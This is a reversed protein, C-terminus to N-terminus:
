VFLGKFHGTRYLLYLLSVTILMTALAGAVILLTEKKVRSPIKSAALLCWIFICGLLVPFVVVYANEGIAALLLSAIVGPVMVANGLYKGAVSSLWYVVGLALPVLAVCAVLLNCMVLSSQPGRYLMFRRMFEETPKKM